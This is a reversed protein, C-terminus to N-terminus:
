VKSFEANKGKKKLSIADFIGLQKTKYLKVTQVSM